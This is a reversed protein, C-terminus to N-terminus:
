DAFYCGVPDFHRAYCECSRVALPLNFLSELTSLANNAMMADIQAQAEEATAYTCRGQMPTALQRGGFNDNCLHTIVFRTVTAM